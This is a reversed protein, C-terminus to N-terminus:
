AETLAEVPSLNASAAAPWWAALLGVVFPMIVGFATMWLDVQPIIAVDQSTGPPPPLHLGGKVAIVYTLLTALLMGAVAGIGGVILGEALFLRRVQTKEMGGLPFRIYHTREGTYAFRPEVAKLDDWM